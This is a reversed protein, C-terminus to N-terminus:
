RWSRACTTPAVRTPNSTTRCARRSYSTSRATRSRCTSRAASSARRAGRAGTSGSCRPRITVRSSGRRHLSCCRRSAGRAARFTSCPRTTRARSRSRAASRAASSGARSGSTSSATTNRRMARPASRAGALAPRGGRELGAVDSTGLYSEVVLPHDGLGGAQLSTCSNLSLGGSGGHCASCYKNFTLQVDCGYTLPGGAVVDRAIIPMLASISSAGFGFVFGRGLVVRIAPSMAVYRFGAALAVGIKERPFTAEPKPPRWRVLVTILGFYSVVNIAFAAAAGLAAVIAGFVRQLSCGNPSM